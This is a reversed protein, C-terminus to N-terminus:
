SSYSELFDYLEIESDFFIGSIIDEQLDAPLTELRIGTEEYIQKTKSWYVVLRGDESIIYFMSNKYNQSIETSTVSETNENTSLEYQNRNNQPNTVFVLILMLFGFMIISISVQQKMDDGWTLIEM